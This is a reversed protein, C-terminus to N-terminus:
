SHQVACRTFRLQLCMIRKGSIHHRDFESPTFSDEAYGIFEGNLWVYMAQEVGEFFLRVRKGCLEKDLDFKKIYSGVPNYEAESFM